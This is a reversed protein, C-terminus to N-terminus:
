NPPTMARERLDRPPRTPTPRRDGRRHDTSNTPAPVRRVDTPRRSTTIGDYSATGDPRHLTIRRRELLQLTRGGEHVLHHHRECLPILNDLDTLGNREWYTVHHIRCHEFGVTCNPYGCTHYMARLARRQARTALRSHRGVALAEGDSDLWIPM